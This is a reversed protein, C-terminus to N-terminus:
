IKKLNKGFRKKGTRVALLYKLKEFAGEGGVLKLVLAKQGGVGTPLPNCDIANYQKRANGFHPL